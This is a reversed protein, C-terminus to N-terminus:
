SFVVSATKSRIAELKWKNKDDHGTVGGGKLLSLHHISGSATTRYNYIGSGMFFDIWGKSRNKAQFNFQEEAYEFACSGSNNARIKINETHGIPIIIDKNSFAYVCNHYVPSATIISNSLNQFNIFYNYAAYARWSVILLITTILYQYTKM